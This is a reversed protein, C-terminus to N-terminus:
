KVLVEKKVCTKRSNSSSSNISCHISAINSSSSDSIWPLPVAVALAGRLVLSVVFEEEETFPRESETFLIDILAFPTRLLGGLSLVWLLLEVLRGALNVTWFRRYTDFTILKEFRIEILIKHLKKTGSWSPGDVTIRAVNAFRLYSIKNNSRVILLEGLRPNTM